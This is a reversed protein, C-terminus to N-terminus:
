NCFNLIPLLGNGCQFDEGGGGGHGHGHAPVAKVTHSVPTAAAASTATAVGAACALAAVTGVAFARSIRSVTKKPELATNM